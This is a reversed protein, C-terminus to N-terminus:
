EGQFRPPLYGVLCILLIKALMNSDNTLLKKNGHSNTLSRLSTFRIGQKLRLDPQMLRCTRYNLGMPSQSFENQKKIIIATLLHHGIMPPSSNHRSTLIAWCQLGFKRTHSYIHWAQRQPTSCISESKQSAWPTLEM